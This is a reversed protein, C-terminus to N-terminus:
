EIGIAAMEHIYLTSLSEKDTILQVKVGKLKAEMLVDMLQRNTFTYMCVKISKQALSLYHKLLKESEKSPFKLVKEYQSPKYPTSTFVADVLNIFNASKQYDWKETNSLYRVLSDKIEDKEIHSDKIEEQLLQINEATLDQLSLKQINSKVISKSM